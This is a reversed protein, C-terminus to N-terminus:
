ALALQSGFAMASKCCSGSSAMGKDSVTLSRPTQKTKKSPGGHGPGMGQEKRLGEWSADAAQVERGRPKKRRRMAMLAAIAPLGILGAKGAGPLAKWADGLRGGLNAMPTETQKDLMTGNPGGGTLAALAKGYGQGEGGMLFEPLKGRLQDLFGTQPKDPAAM